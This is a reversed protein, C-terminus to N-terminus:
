SEIIELEDLSEIDPDEVYTGDPKHSDQSISINATMGLHHSGYANPSADLIELTGTWGETKHRVRFTPLKM